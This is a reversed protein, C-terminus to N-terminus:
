YSNAKPSPLTMLSVELSPSFNTNYSSDLKETSITYLIMLLLISPRLTKWFLAVRHCILYNENTQTEFPTIRIM